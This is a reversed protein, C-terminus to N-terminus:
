SGRRLHAARLVRRRHQDGATTIGLGLAQSRAGTSSDLVDYLGRDKQAHLEDSIFCSSNLGDQTDSDGGLPEYKSGTGEQFILSRTSACASRAQVRARAAGDRQAISWVIKAQDKKTAASWVQAGEEGDAGAHLARPRRAAHEEREQAGGRPVRPPLAAPRHRPAGASCCRSSSSRGARSSSRRTTENDFYYPWGRRRRRASGPRRPAAPVGGEGVQVRRDDGDVVARAYREARAAYDM